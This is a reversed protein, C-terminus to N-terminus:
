IFNEPLRSEIFDLGSNVLERIHSPSKKFERGIESFEKGSMTHMAVLYLKGLSGESLEILIDEIVEFQEEDLPILKDKDISSKLFIGLSSKYGKPGSDSRASIAYRELLIKVRRRDNSISKSSHELADSLVSQEKQFAAQSM